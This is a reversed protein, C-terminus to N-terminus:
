LGLLTGLMAAAEARTVGSQPAFTGDPNGGAVGMRRLTEVAERAYDSVSETDAFVEKRRATGGTLNYATAYRALMVAMDQRSVAEEPGFTDPGTGAALKQAVAWEVATEYWEGQPVDTFRGTNQVSDPNAKAASFLIQALQARSVAEEPHFSGDPYGRFLGAKAAKEIAERGWHGSLDTFAARDTGAADGASTGSQNSGNTGPTGSGEGETGAGGSGSGGAVSSGSGSGGAGAGGSGSGGSGSPGSSGGSGSGSSGDGSGGSSSGGGSSGSSGSGDSGGSSDGGSGNNDGSGSSGSDGSEGSGGSSGGSDGGGEQAKQFTVKANNPAGIRYLKAADYTTAKSNSNGIESVAGQEVGDKVKLRFSFYALSTGTDAGKTSFIYTIVKFTGRGSQLVPEETFSWNSGDGEELLEASGKVYDFCAADYSVTNQMAYRSWSETSDVYATVEVEEGAELETRPEAETRFTLRPGGEAAYVPEAMWGPGALAPGATLVSGSLGVAAALVLALWRM